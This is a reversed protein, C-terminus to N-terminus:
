LQKLLSKGNISLMNKMMKLRIHKVKVWIVKSDMQGKLFLNLILRYLM